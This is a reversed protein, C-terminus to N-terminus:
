VVSKRDEHRRVVEAFTRELASPDLAGRLRVAAPINYLPSGPELEDLFWLRQQAFSLPIPQARSAQPVPGSSAPASGALRWALEALSPGSLLVQMPLAVGLDKEVEHAIEVAALSDMGYGTLPADRELEAPAVKLRHALRTRLWGELAEPTSPRAEPVVHVSEQVSPAVPVEPADAQPQRWSAVAQLEEALFAARAARRQIKGSSTKPLSGPALLTLAHLQLEHTEAVQQRLSRAVEEVEVPQRRTDAEYVLVLREEGEVEVSFAAGCGPRLAASAREATLEIDQPHHNRGRVILLEKLRGTVFLEAGLLFGLDGTRLFPGAGDATHAQFDRATDEPREWYGQAVSPGQVWVEGVAGPACPVRTEPNVVWVRQEPLSQGCGVLTQTAAQGAPAPAAHGERLRPADVTHVVPRSGQTGGSVILTGEALGYCPYFAEPRFGSPAFAQAFRELTEARIPEAGCFAVQWHSLDLAAREAETTKRVCLDFAFNPGGSITGHTQSLLQLWRLPRRLFTLPSLLTTSFGGYVTGLIGGILGMDHYPPLWIVGASEPRMRFAGHILQLNHLLNAHTLRVGKPTGTSGSTYQLFALADPGLAPRRWDGAAHEPLEDTAVWRLARLDPASEFLVEAMSLIFSTTLVVSAQCDQIIARLRPLTRELRSPEPPYAPVAVVDAALCGFFGSIYDLGPPYLLVAREGPRVFQQLSAGIAHARRLLTSYPLTDQEGDDDGAFHFLPADARLAARDELLELLTSSSSVHSATRM